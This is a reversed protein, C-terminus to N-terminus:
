PVAHILRLNSFADQSSEPTVPIIANAPERGRRTFMQSLWQFTASMIDKDVRFESFGAPRAARRHMSRYSTAGINLFFCNKGLHAAGKCGVITDARPAGVHRTTLM